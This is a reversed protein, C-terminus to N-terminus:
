YINRSPSTHLDSQQGKTSRQPTGTRIASTTVLDSLVDVLQTPPFREEDLIPFDLAPNIICAEALMELSLPEFSFAIWSLANRVQIRHIDDIKELM